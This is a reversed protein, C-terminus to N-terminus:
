SRTMLRQNSVIVLWDVYAKEHARWAAAHCGHTSLFVRHLGLRMFAMGLAWRVAQDRDLVRAGPVTPRLIRVARHGQQARARPVYVLGIPPGASSPDAESPVPLCVIARLLAASLWANWPGSMDHKGQPKPARRSISATFQPDQMWSLIHDMDPEEYARYVLRTTRYQMLLGVDTQNTM